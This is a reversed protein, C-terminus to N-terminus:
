CTEGGPQGGPATVSGRGGPLPSSPPAVTSQAVQQPRYGPPPTVDAALSFNCASTLSATSLILALVLLNSPRLLRM